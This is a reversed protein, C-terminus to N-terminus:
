GFPVPGIIRKINRVFKHFITFSNKEEPTTRDRRKKLTKGKEDIVGTKYASWFKFPITLLTLIRMISILDVAKLTKKGVTILKQGLASTHAPM